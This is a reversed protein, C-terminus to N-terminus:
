LKQSTNIHNRIRDEIDKAVELVEKAVLPREGSILRLGVVLPEIIESVEAREIASIVECVNGRRALVIATEVVKALLERRNKLSKLAIELHSAASTTEGIDALVPALALNAEVLTPDIELARRLDAMEADRAGSERHLIARAFLVHADVAAVGM